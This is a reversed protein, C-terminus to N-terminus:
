LENREKCEKISNKYYYSVADWSEFIRYNIDNILEYKLQITAEFEGTEEIWRKYSENKVSFGDFIIFKKFISSAVKKHFQYKFRGSYFEELYQQRFHSYHTPSVVAIDIDSEETFDRLGNAPNLSFGIKGSGFISVNNKHVGLLTAVDSKFNDYKNIAELTTNPSFCYANNGLLDDQYIDDINKSLINKKEEMTLTM